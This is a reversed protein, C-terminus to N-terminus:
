FSTFIKEAKNSTFLNNVAALFEYGTTGQIPWQEPLAEDEGLIKEVVLYTEEGALQRLDSLYGSPDYLGDIHDIRLGQFVGDDVLEKILAHYKTFVNEDQINLCILGNVTFFRRFNIQQDTDQGNSLVYTQQEIIQKVRERDSNAESLIQGVLSKEQENKMLSALQLLLENWRESFVAPEEVENIEKCQLGIQALAQNQKIIDSEFLTSYSRPNLPFNAGEYVLMLRNSEYSIIVKGSEIEVDLDSGLFPVMLKGHFLRSNWAIDFFGAYASQTGKELVDMLWPNESHFAMHNPVIDQLWGMHSKKLTKSISKLHDVSGIEPDIENPNVGDYGHTSGPTSKFVPSAYLTSVGLQRWYPILTELNKFTFEKHLQLRYTAIPNNM